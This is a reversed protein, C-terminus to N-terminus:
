TFNSRHAPTTTLHDGQEGEVGDIRTRIGSFDVIKGTPICFLDHNSWSYISRGNTAKKNDFQDNKKM